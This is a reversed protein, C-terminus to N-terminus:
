KTELALKLDALDESHYDFGMIDLMDIHVTGWLVFREIEGHKTLTYLEVMESDGSHQRVLVQKKM